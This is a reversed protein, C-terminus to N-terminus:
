NTLYYIIAPFILSAMLNIRRSGSEVVYIGLATSSVLIILGLWNTFFINVSIVVTIVGITLYKYNIKNMFKAFIRSVFIGLFFSLIGSIVIAGILIILDSQSFSPLLSKVAAATGTRSKGIAYVAVYSLGMIITNCAGVMFLFGKRDQGIFESGLTAAHSSGIGPLFSCLPAFIAAAFASKFFGKKELKIKKLPFIKQKKPTVKSKLSVFLTSIGFLGSLLPLLPEKVPTNFSAIGLFGALIFVFFSILFDDERLIIYISIFILLFPMFDKILNYFYPLAFTFVPSFLLIILIAFLSGYLTLIFAEYGRGELLLQHGPLVSLASDEDPAGLFISPVFDIFTHTISMAVIFVALAIFPISQFKDLSFLLIAAVLNIHIGPALGTFTGCIVGLLLAIILEIVM